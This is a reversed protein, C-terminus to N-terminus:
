EDPVEGVEKHAEEAQSVEVGNRAQGFIGADCQIVIQFLLLLADFFGYEIRGDEAVLGANVGPAYVFILWGLLLFASAYAGAKKSNM